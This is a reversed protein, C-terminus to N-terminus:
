EWVLIAYGDKNEWLFIQLDARFLCGEHNLEDFKNMIAHLRAETIQVSSEQLLEEEEREALVPSPVIGWKEELWKTFPSPENAVVIAGKSTIIKLKQM